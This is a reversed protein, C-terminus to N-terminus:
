QALLTDNEGNQNMINSNEGLISKKQQSQQQQNGDNNFSVEQLQQQKIESKQFFNTKIKSDQFNNNKQQLINPNQNEDAAEPQFKISNQSKESEVNQQKNASHLDLVRQIQQQEQSNLEEKIDLLTKLNKLKEDNDYEKSKIVSLVNQIVNGYENEVQMCKQETNMNQQMQQGVMKSNPTADNKKSLVSKLVVEKKKSNKLKELSDFENSFEQDFDYPTSKGRRQIAYYPQKEEKNGMNVDYLRKLWQLLELNDQQRCKVLKNVDIFRIVKQKHMTTTLIKFNLLYEYETTPKWNVKGMPITGPFTMDFIQCFIHGKGFEEIKQVNLKLKDQVWALLDKKSAFNGIDMIGFSQSIM